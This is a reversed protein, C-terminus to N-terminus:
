RKKNFRRFSALADNLVAALRVGARELQQNVIPLAVREYSAPLAGSHRLKGYIEAVAIAMTPFM